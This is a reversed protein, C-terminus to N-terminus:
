RVFQGGTRCPLISAGRVRFSQHVQSCRGRRPALATPSRRPGSRGTGVRCARRRCTVEGQQRLGDQDQELVQQAAGSRAVDAVVVDRASAASARRRRAVDREHGAPDQHLVEGAHGGDDVERRHAAGDCRAPPSGIPSRATSGPRGRSRGSRAPRGTGRGRSAYSRLMSNSYPAVGLAVRRRRQAWCANSPRRTTGGPAPMQWWTFRSCRPCTTDSARRADREGVREDAGVRVRRHDVAEAHEAPPDAADLGFRRHEALRHEQRLRDHDAHARDPSSGAPVVAVSRTSVSVSISRACPTTPCTRPTRRRRAQRREDIASRAVSDFM